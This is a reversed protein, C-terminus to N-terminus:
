PLSWQQNTAGTCATVDVTQGPKAGGAPDTLCKSTAANVLSRTAGARWQAATGSGCAALQVSGDSAAQACKGGVQVTGDAAIIWHQTAGGTCTAVDVRTGAVDLCLGGPGTIASGPVPPLAAAPSAAAPTEAAPTEASGAPDDSSPSVPAAMPNAPLGAPDTAAPRTTAGSTPSHASASPSGSATASASGTAPAPRIDTRTPEPGVPLGITTSRHHDGTLYEAAGVGGLAVLVAFAAGAIVLFRRRRSPVAEGSGHARHAPVSRVPMGAYEPVVPTIETPWDRGPWNRTGWDQTDATEPQWDRVATDGGDPSDHPSDHPPWGQAAVTEAQWDHALWDHAPAPKAQGAWIPAAWTDSSPRQTPGNRLPGNQLPGNQLPGNQLPGNQLPGPRSPSAPWASAPGPGASGQTPWNPPQSTDPPPTRTTWSQAPWTEESLPSGDVNVPRHLYRRVLLPDDTGEDDAM